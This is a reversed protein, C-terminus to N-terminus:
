EGAIATAKLAFAPQQSVLADLAALDGAFYRDLAGGVPRPPKGDILDFAGYHLRLLRRMRAEYDSFDLARLRGERDSILLMEGLPSAYRSLILADPRPKTSM